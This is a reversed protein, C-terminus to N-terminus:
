LALRAKLDSLAAARLIRRGQKLAKRTKALWKSKDRHFIRRYNGPFHSWIYSKPHAAMRQWDGWLVYTANGKVLCELVVLSSEQFEFAHYGLWQAKGVYCKAQGLSKIAEFRTVDIERGHIDAPFRHAERRYYDVVYKMDWTGPPLLEFSLREVPFDVQLAARQEKTLAQEPSEPRRSLSAWGDYDTLQKTIWKDYDGSQKALGQALNEPRGHLVAGPQSSANVEELPSPMVHLHGRASAAVGDDAPNSHSRQREGLEALYARARKVGLERVLDNISIKGATGAKKHV